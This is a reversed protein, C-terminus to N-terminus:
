LDDLRRPDSLNHIFRVIVIEDITLRYILSYPFRRLRARRFDGRVKQYQEPNREVAAIAADAARGFEAGLGASRSEYWDFAEAIALRARPRVVLTRSM